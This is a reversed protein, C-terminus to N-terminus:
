KNSKKKNEHEEMLTFSFYGNFLHFLEDFLADAFERIMIRGLIRLLEAIVDKTKKSISNRYADTVKKLCPYEDPNLKALVNAIPEDHDRNIQSTDSIRFPKYMKETDQATDSKAEPVTETYVKVDKKCGKLKAYLQGDKISLSVVNKFVEPKGDPSVILKIEDIVKDWFSSVSGSTSYQNIIVVIIDIPYLLGSDMSVRRETNFQSKFKNRMVRNTFTAHRLQPLQLIDKREKDCIAGTLGKEKFDNINKALDIIIDPLDENIGDKNDIASALYILFRQFANLASIYNSYKKKDQTKDREEITHSICLDIFAFVLKRGNKGQAMLAGFLSYIHKGNYIAQLNLKPYEERFFRRTRSLYDSSARSTFITELWEKFSEELSVNM